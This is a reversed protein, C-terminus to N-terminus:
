RALWGAAIPAMLLLLAMAILMPDAAAVASSDTAHRLEPGLAAFECSIPIASVALGVVAASGLVLRRLRM